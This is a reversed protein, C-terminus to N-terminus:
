SAICLNLQLLWGLAAQFTLYSAQGCQQARSVPYPMKSGSLSSDPLNRRSSHKHGIAVERATAHILRILTLELPHGILKTIGAKTGVVGESSRRFATRVIESATEDHIRQLNGRRLLILFTTTKMTM